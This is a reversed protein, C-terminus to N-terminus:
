QSSRLSMAIRREEKRIRRDTRLIFRYLWRGVLCLGGCALMMVPLGIAREALAGTLCILFFFLSLFGIRAALNVAYLFVMTKKM